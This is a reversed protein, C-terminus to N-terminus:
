QKSFNESHYESPIFGKDILIKKIALHSFSKDSEHEIAKEKTVLKVQGGSKEFKYVIKVDTV